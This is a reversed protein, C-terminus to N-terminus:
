QNPIENSIYAGNQSELDIGGIVDILKGDKTEGNYYHILGSPVPPLNGLEYDAVIESESLMRNYICCRTVLGTMYRDMEGDCVGLLTINSTSNLNTIAAGNYRIGGVIVGDMYIYSMNGGVSSPTVFVYHHWEEDTICETNSPLWWRTNALGNLYNGRTEGESRAGGGLSVGTTDSGFTCFNGKTNLPRKAWVTMTFGNDSFIFTSQANATFMCGFTGDGGVSAVVGNISPKASRGFAIMNACIM